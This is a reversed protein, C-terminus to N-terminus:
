RSSWGSVLPGAAPTRRVTRSRASPPPSWVPLKLTTLRTSPWWHEKPDVRPGYRSSPRLEFMQEFTDRKQRPLTTCSRVPTRDFAQESSPPASLAASPWRLRDHCRCRHPHTRDLRARPPAPHPQGSAPPKRDDGTDEAQHDDTEGGGAM